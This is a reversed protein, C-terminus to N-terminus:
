GPDHQASASSALVAQEELAARAQAIAESAEAEAQRRAQHEQELSRRLVDMEGHAAALASELATVQATTEQPQVLALSGELEQIRFTAQQLAAERRACEVSLAQVQGVLDSLGASPGGDATASGFGRADELMLILERVIQERRLVEARADSLERGLERLRGEMASVEAETAARLEEVAALAADRDAVAQRLQERLEDDQRSTAAGLELIQADLEEIKRTRDRLMAELEEIRKGAQKDLAQLDEITDRQDAEVKRLRDVEGQVSALKERAEDREAQLSANSARAEQLEGELAKIRALDETRSGEPKPPLESTRRIMGLELAAKTSRKREEELENSLRFARERQHRLEEELDRVKNELQAARVHADGARAESKRLQDDRKDIEAQLEPVRQAFQARDELDRIREHAAQLAAELPAVQSSTEAQPAAVGGRLLTQPVQILAYADLRQRARSAVALFFLPEEAGRDLLSTDVVVDPDGEPAFDAIVYGAFPAQGLMRVDAFQLSVADFLEYYSLTAGKGSSGPADPNPSVFVAAGNPSVLRRAREIVPDPTEFMGLDPVLVTDFAGDRVALDGWPLPAIVLTRSSGARVASEAARAADPDYVHVLRAGRELVSTGLPRTSDGLIVVRRGRVIPELYPGLVISPELVDM